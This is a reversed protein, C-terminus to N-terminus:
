RRLTAMYDRGNIDRWSEFQFGGDKALGEMASPGICVRTPLGDGMNERYLELVTCWGRPKLLERVAKILGVKNEAHHLVFAVMVGDLSGKEIPFEAHSCRSIRVNGLRSEAVRCRTVELMEERVDVAHLQGYTLFKAMPISFFGPGCGIDAVHDYPTIPMHAMILFPDLEEEREASTLQAILTKLNEYQPQM